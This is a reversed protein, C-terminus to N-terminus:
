FTSRQGFCLIFNLLSPCFFISCAIFVSLGSVLFGILSQLPHYIFHYYFQFEWFAPYHIKFYPDIPLLQNTPKSVKFYFKITTFPGQNNNNKIM